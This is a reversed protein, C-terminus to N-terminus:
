ENIEVINFDPVEYTIQRIAFGSIPTVTKVSNLKLKGIGIFESNNLVKDVYRVLNDRRNGIVGKFTKRNLAMYNKHCAITVYLRIGKITKNDVRNVEMEVWIYAAVEQSTEDIYQYDKINTEMVKDIDDEEVEDFAKNVILGACHKDEAIRLIVKSPYEVIQDLYTKAM